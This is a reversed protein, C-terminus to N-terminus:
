QSGASTAAPISGAVDCAIRCVKTLEELEPHVRFRNLNPEAVRGDPRRHVEVPVEVFAHVLGSRLGGVGEVPSSQQVSIIGRGGLSRGHKALTPRLRLFLKKPRQAVSL